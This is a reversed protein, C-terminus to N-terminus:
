LRSSFVGVTRRDAKFKPVSPSSLSFAAPNDLTMREVLSATPAVSLGSDRTAWRNASAGGSSTTTEISRRPDPPNVYFIKM